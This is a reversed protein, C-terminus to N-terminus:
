SHEPEKLRSPIRTLFENFTIVGYDTVDDGGRFTQMYVLIFATEKEQLREEELYADALFRALEHIM